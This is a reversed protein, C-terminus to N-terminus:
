GSRLEEAEVPLGGPPAAGHREEAPVTKAGRQDFGFWWVAGLAVTAALLAAALARWESRFRSGVDEALAQWTTEHHAMYSATVGPLLEDGIASFSAALEPPVRAM